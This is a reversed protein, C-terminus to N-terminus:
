MKANKTMFRVKGSSNAAHMRLIASIFDDRALLMFNEMEKDAESCMIELHEELM